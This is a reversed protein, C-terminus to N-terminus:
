EEELLKWLEDPIRQNVRGHRDYYARSNKVNCVKCRGKGSKEDIIYNEGILDHGHKCFGRALLDASNGPAEKWRILTKVIAEKRRPSMLTYLTMMLGIANSGYLGWRYFPQGNRNKNHEYPGVVKGGLLKQLRDLPQRQVQAATIGSRDVLFTGEGELFGAAWYLEKLDLM